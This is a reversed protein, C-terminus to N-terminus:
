NGSVASIVGGSGPVPAASNGALSSTPSLAHTLAPSNCHFLNTGLDPQKPCSCAQIELKGGMLCQLHGIVSQTARISRNTPTVSIETHPTTPSVVHPLALSNCQFLGTGLGTAKPLQLSSDGIREGNPFATPYCCTSTRAGSISRGPSDSSSGTPRQVGQWSALCSTQSSALSLACSRRCVTEKADVPQLQRHGTCHGM